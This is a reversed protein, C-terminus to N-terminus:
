SGCIRPNILEDNRNLIRIGESTATAAIRAKPGPTPRASTIEAGPVSDLAPPAVSAHSTVRPKSPLAIIVSCDPASM